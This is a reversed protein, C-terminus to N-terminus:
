FSSPRGKPHKAIISLMGPGPPPLIVDKLGDVHFVKSRAIFNVKRVATLTSLYTVMHHALLLDHPKQNYYNFKLEQVAAWISSCVQLSVVRLAM